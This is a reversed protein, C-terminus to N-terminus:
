EGLFLKRCKECALLYNEKSLECECEIYMDEGHFSILEITNCIHDHELRYVNDDYSSYFKDTIGIKLFEEYTPLNLTVVKSLNFKLYFQVEEETEFYCNYGTYVLVDEIEQAKVEGYGFNELRYITANQKILEAMREKAIM